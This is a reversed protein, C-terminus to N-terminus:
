FSWVPHFAMNASSKRPWNFSSAAFFFDQQHRIQVFNGENPPTIALIGLVVRRFQHHLLHGDSFSVYLELSFSFDDAFLIIHHVAMSSNGCCLEMSNGKISHAAQSHHEDGIESFSLYEAGLTSGGLQTYHDIAREDFSFKAGPSAEHRHPSEGSVSRGLISSM